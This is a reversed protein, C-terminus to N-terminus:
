AAIKNHDADENEKYNTEAIGDVFRVLSIVDAIYKHGYLKKWNNEANIILKFVCAMITNRSFCNKSKKTRHRVTAFTSEIPNTTRISQWHQAPFNYFSLLAEIDKELCDTAKPHKLQYNNMFQNFAKMAEKKNDAEYIDHLDAKAKTQLSSPLKNLVNRTKHVWCRQKETEPFVEQLAGWFGLAGDGIGLKPGSKIGRAKLDRLLDLWSEKSERFGDNISVLEKKGAEDVGIIVLVCRKDDEMRAQLYIGDAWWYIYKKHQLDQQQFHEYESCWSSKMRSIVSHSVNAADKGLIPELVTQFDGTSIGKLYLLPLLKDLSITRRMYKPIWQPFFTIKPAVSGRDRVRPVQVEVSGIGTQIDREPLYGNRVLRKRGDELLDNQYNGLFDQVEQEIAAKLMKQASSRLFETLGDEVPNKLDIINNEKM